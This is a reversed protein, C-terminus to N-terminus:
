VHEVIVTISSKVKEVIEERIKQLLDETVKERAYQEVVSDVIHQFDEPMVIQIDYHMEM